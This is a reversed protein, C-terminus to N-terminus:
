NLFAYYCSFSFDEMLLFKLRKVTVDIETYVVCVENKKKQQLINFVEESLGFRCSVMQLGRSHTVPKLTTPPHPPPTALATLGKVTNAFIYRDTCTPGKRRLPNTVKLYHDITDQIGFLLIGVWLRKETNVTTFRKRKRM